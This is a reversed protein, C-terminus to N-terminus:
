YAPVITPNNVSVRNCNPVFVNVQFARLYNLFSFKVSFNIFRNRYGNIINLM